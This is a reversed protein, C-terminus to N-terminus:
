NISPASNTKHDYIQFLKLLEIIQEEIVGYSQLRVLTTIAKNQRASFQDMAHIQMSLRFLEQVRQLDAGGTTGPLSAGPKTKQLFSEVIFGVDELSKAMTGIRVCDRIDQSKRWVVDTIAEATEETAGYRHTLLQVAIECFQDYISPELELTAKSQPNSLRNAASNLEIM